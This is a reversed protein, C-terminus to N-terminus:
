ASLKTFLKEKVFELRNEFKSELLDGRHSIVFVSTDPDLTELIKILNDIGDNDLSSDGIEDMILLNTNLSNKLRAIQRWAFLISMDIRLKEGESFSDYSFDDRHRSRISEEFNENLSFSVFFDLTELYHNICKNMIPLYHAIIRSKIGTDKLLEALESVYKSITRQQDYEKRHALLMDSTEDIHKREEDIDKQIDNTDTSKEILKELSNQLYSNERLLRNAEEMETAIQKNEDYLVDLKKELEEKVSTKNTIDDEIKQLDSRFKKLHRDRHAKTLKSNCKPCVENESFFDIDDAISQRDRRLVLLSESISEKEEVLPAAAEANLKVNKELDEPPTKIQALNDDIKQRISEQELNSDDLMKGRIDKLKQIHKKQLRLKDENGKIEMSTVTMRNRLTTARDKLIVSMKSFIHIDLLDEVVQRRQYTPLQMFPTFNGSGLVAVQHFTRHSFKLINCELWRQYDRVHSEQNILEDNKYIEFIAPKIGRVIRYTNKGGDTEFEIETLLGKGNVSNILQNRNVKRLSKGFLAFSIACIMSSNHSVIDNAYFEHVEAVQLDYLDETFSEKRIHSINECGDITEVRDDIRVDKLKTWKSNVWLFHDPSGSILKGTKTTITYVESNIATVDAYEITKFGHRTSVELEGIFEPFENYFDVIDKITTKM